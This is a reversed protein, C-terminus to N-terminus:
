KKEESKAKEQTAKLTAEAEKRQDALQKEYAAKSIVKTVKVEFILPTNPPIRQNGMVGYGRASPIFLRGEGGENFYVLGDDWGSIAGQQGPIFTFPTTPNNLTDYSQDFVEGSFFKGKYLVSVAMGTDAKPGNGQNIIEVYTGEPTKEAKINNKQLYDVITKDDIGKQKEMVLSDVRMARERLDQGVKQAEQPDTFVKVIRFATIFYGGEKAFPPLPRGYKVITDTSMRTVVSDGVKSKLFIRIYQGPVQNSDVPVLQPVSDIPQSLLSDNYYQTIVLMAINGAKLSDGGKGKVIKYELGNAMRQFRQSNCGTVVFAIMVAVLAPFTLKNM